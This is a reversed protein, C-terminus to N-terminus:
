MNESSKQAWWNDIASKAILDIEHLDMALPSAFRLENLL